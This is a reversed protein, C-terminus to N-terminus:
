VLRGVVGRGGRGGPAGEPGPKKDVLMRVWCKRTGDVRYWEREWTPPYGLRLWAARKEFYLVIYEKTVPHMECGFQWGVRGIQITTPFPHVQEPNLNPIMRSLHLFFRYLHFAGLPYIGAYWILWNPDLQRQILHNTEVLHAM